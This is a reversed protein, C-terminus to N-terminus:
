YDHLMSCENDLSAAVIQVRTKEIYLMWHPDGGVISTAQKLM